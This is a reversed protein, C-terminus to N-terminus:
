RSTYMSVKTLAEHEAILISLYNEEDEDQVNKMEERLLEIAKSLVSVYENVAQNLKKM